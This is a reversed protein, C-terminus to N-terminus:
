VASAGTGNQRARRRQWTRRSIGEGKWPQQRAASQALYAARPIAGTARRNRMKAERDAARRRATREAKNLDVAGITRIKLRQREEFTLGIREALSDAKWKLAPKALLSGREPARMWPAHARLWAHRISLPNTPCNALHCCMVYADDRGSDDDPLIYAGDGRGYRDQFVLNLEHVRLPAQNGDSKLTSAYLRYIAGHRTAIGAATTPPHLTDYSRGHISM